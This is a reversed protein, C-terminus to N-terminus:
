HLVPGKFGIPIGHLPGRYKGAAIEQEAQKTEALALEGCATMYARLTGDLKDIRELYAEVLSVPSVERKHLLEALEAVTKFILEEVLM